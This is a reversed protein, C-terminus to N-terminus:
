NNEQLSQDYLDATGRLIECVSAEGYIAALSSSLVHFQAQILNEISIGKYKEDVFLEKMTLFLHEAIKRTIERNLDNEEIEM